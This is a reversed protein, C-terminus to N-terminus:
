FALRPAAASARLYNAASSAFSVSLSNQDEHDGLSSRVADRLLVTKTRVMPERRFPSVHDRILLRAAIWLAMQAMQPGSIQMIQAM